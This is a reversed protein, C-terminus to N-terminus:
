RRVEELYAVRVALSKQILERCLEPYISFLEVRIRVPDEDQDIEVFLVALVEFSAEQVDNVCAIRRRNDHKSDGNFFRFCEVESVGPRDGFGKRSGLDVSPLIINLVADTPGPLDKRFDDTRPNRILHTPSLLYCRKESRVPFALM